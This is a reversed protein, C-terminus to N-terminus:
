PSREMKKRRKMLPLSGELQLCLLGLVVLVTM